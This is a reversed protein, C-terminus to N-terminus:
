LRSLTPSSAEEHCGFDADVKLYAFCSNVYLATYVFCGYLDANSELFYADTSAVRDIELAIALLENNRGKESLEDLM